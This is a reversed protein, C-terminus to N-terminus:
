PTGGQTQRRALCENLAEVLSQRYNKQIWEVRGLRDLLYTRPLFAANLESSIEGNVDPILTMNPLTSRLSELESDDAQLIAVLRFNPPLADSLPALTHENCGCKSTVVVFTSGPATAIKPIRSGLLPDGEMAKLLTADDYVTQGADSAWGNMTMRTFFLAVAGLAVYAWAPKPSNFAWALFRVGGVRVAQRARQSSLYHPNNTAKM